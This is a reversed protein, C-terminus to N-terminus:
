AIRETTVPLWHLLGTFDNELGIESTREVPKGCCSVQDSSQTLFHIPVKGSDTEQDHTQSRQSPLVRYSYPVANLQSIRAEQQLWRLLLAVMEELTRSTKTHLIAFSQLQTTVKAMAIVFVFCFDSVLQSATNQFSFFFSVSM